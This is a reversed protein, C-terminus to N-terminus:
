ILPMGLFHRNKDEDTKLKSFEANIVAARM